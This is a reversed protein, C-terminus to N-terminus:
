RDDGPAQPLFIRFVSGAALASSAEVHGHHAEVIAKVLSLGLGLGRQSRSRDSRYLRAWIRSLEDPTMGIGTDTVSIAIAQDHLAVRVAVHGGPETYKIANDLLNALVQRLRNRDALVRMEQPMTASITISKEEAAYRYLEVTDNILPPLSVSDLELRMTGTEAESIDMLTNLMRLLQDSEEVCDALAERYVELKPESRLAVEATGRFRAVPTRLDHAVNDLAERMGRVLAAIKNLMGNFLTGLEDLEDGTRLLPVRADLAGADIERVTQILRRIPRLARVALFSGGLLGLMFVPIAVSAVVWVFRELFSDREETSKGVQLLSGDPLRRSAIELIAEDDKAPLRILPAPDALPAHELRGVDFEAWQDPIEMFVTTNRPGAIRIFFPKTSRLRAERTLQNKLRTLDTAQYQAVLQRVREDVSHRDQERLSTALLFYALAFLCLTGLIFFASFWLTM